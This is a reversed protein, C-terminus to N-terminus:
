TFTFGIDASASTDWQNQLAFTQDYVKGPQLDDNVSDVLNSANYQMLITHTTNTWTTACAYSTVAEFAARWDPSATYLVSYNITSERGRLREFGIFNGQFFRPDTRNTWSLEVSQCYALATSNVKTNSAGHYFLVPDTPFATDAPLPFATADPDSSSDYTNADMKQAGLGLTLMTLGNQANSVLRGTRVKVGKYRRRKITGDDRMIAHYVTCSALDGAPETTTWPATQAVNIRTVAWDLLLAAQTYCLEVELNGTVTIQDSVAYGPVAYGGGFPIKRRTVNPRMTFRNAGALRIYISDTGAVPTVEQTGYASEKVIWLAEYPAYAM